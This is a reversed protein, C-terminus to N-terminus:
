LMECRGRPSSHSAPKGAPGPPQSVRHHAQSDPAFGCVVYRLRAACGLLACLFCGALSWRSHGCRAPLSPCLRKLLSTAEVPASMAPGDVCNLRLLRSCNIATALWSDQLLVSKQRECQARLINRRWQAPSGSGTERDGAIALVRGFCWRDGSAPQSFFFRM